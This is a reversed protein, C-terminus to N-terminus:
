TLPEGNFVREVLKKDIARMMSESIITNGCKALGV